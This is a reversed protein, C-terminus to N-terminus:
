GVLERMRSVMEDVPLQAAFHAVHRGSADLVHVLASHPVAYDGNAEERREAFVRYARKASEIQEPTGTLGTFHPYAPRLFARMTEPSDRAPDVTIYLGIADVQELLRSLAALAKPCVVKCNTFGFFVVVVRGRYSALTVAHGDHDMLAFDGGVLSM